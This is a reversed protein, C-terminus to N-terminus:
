MSKPKTITGLMEAVIRKANQQKIQKYEASNKYQPDLKAKNIAQKWALKTDNRNYDAKAKRHRDYSPNPLNQVEGLIYDRKNKKRKNTLVKDYVTRAKKVGWKMGPVGYHYLQDTYNYTWM